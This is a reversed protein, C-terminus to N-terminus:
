PQAGLTDILIQHRFVAKVMGVLRDFTEHGPQLADIGVAKLSHFARGPLFRLHVKAASRRETCFIAPSVSCMNKADHQAMRALPVAFGDQPLGRLGEQPTQLIRETIKANSLIRKSPRM